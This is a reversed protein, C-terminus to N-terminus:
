RPEPILFVDWAWRGAQAGHVDKVKARYRFQNGHEDTRKSLRYRLELSAIGLEQLTHLEDLESVGNHNVDQWLRLSSFVADNRDIIGDGNGGHNGNRASSPQDFEALALFGNKEENLLPDPQYTFNGFLEAGKSIRGDGDRDFALWADDSGPATWSLKEARGDGNLDFEAGGALDTLRFGDGNVDILIPSTGACPGTCACAFENWYDFGNCPYQQDFCVGSPDRCDGSEYNWMWGQAYCADRDETSCCSNCGTYYTGAPCSGSFGPSVCGHVSTRCSWAVRLTAGFDGCNPSVGSQSGGNCNRTSAQVSSSGSGETVQMTAQITGMPDDCCVPDNEKISENVSVLKGACSGSTSFPDTTFQTIEPADTLNGGYWELNPNSTQSHVTDCNCVNGWAGPHDTSPGHFCTTQDDPCDRSKTTGAFVVDIKGTMAGTGPSHATDVDNSCVGHGGHGNCELAWFGSMFRNSSFVTFSCACAQSKSMTPLGSTAAPAPTERRGSRFESSSLGAAKRFRAEVRALDAEQTRCGSTRAAAELRCKDLALKLYARDVLLDTLEAASAKLGMEGIRKKVENLVDERARLELERERRQIDAALAERTQPTLEAEIRGSRPEAAFGYTSILSFGLMLVIWVAETKRKM